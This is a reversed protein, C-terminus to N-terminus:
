ANIKLGRLLKQAAPLKKRRRFLKRMQQLLGAYPICLRAIKRAHKYILIGYPTNVYPLYFQIIIVDFANEAPLKYLVAPLRMKSM